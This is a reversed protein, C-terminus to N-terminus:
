VPPPRPISAKSKNDEFTARTYSVTQSLRVPTRGQEGEPAPSGAGLRGSSPARNKEFGPRQCMYDAYKVVLLKLLPLLKLASLTASLTEAGRQFISHFFLRHQCKSFPPALPSLHQHDSVRQHTRTSRWRTCGLHGRRCSPQPHCCPGAVPSQARHERRAAPCFSM